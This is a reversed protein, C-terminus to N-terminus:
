PSEADADAKFDAAAEADPLAIFTALPVEGYRYTMRRSDLLLLLGLREGTKTDWVCSLEGDMVGSGWVSTNENPMLDSVIFAPDLRLGHKSALKVSVIGEGDWDRAQAAKLEDILRRVRQRGTPEPERPPGHKGVAADFKAQWDSKEPAM